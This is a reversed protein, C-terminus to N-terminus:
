KEDDEDPEDTGTGGAAATLAPPGVAIPPSLPTSGVPVSGTLVYQELARNAISRAVKKVAKGESAELVKWVNMPVYVVLNPM